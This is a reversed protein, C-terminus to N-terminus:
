ITFRKGRDQCKKDGNNKCGKCGKVCPTKKLKKIAIIVLSLTIIAIILSLILDSSGYLAIGLLNITLAVIYAAATQFIIMFILWKISGLERFAAAVSATCPPSLLVFASFAYVGLPTSFVTQLDVSLMEFTEVVAEKAFASAIVAISAQWSDFGLPKFIPSIAKGVCCLLSQETNGNTYGNVGINRLAWLLVSMVFVILGAKTMFDKTKELLVSKVDKVSPFRLMPIELAFLGNTTKFIKLKKLLSGFVITSVIGLFYMSTAIIASGGFLVTSFWGFVATKAGCPMFPTLFITMRKEDVNEITRTSSLGTVTCGCSLMMPIFSKGSLGFSRFLRDLLFATRAAYGSEEIVALLAFLILIQPLFSCVTGFARIIGDCLMSIIWQPVERGVLWGKVGQGITDFVTTIGKGVFGGLRISLFYVLTMILIFIPLGLYKNLIIKDIRETLEDARIPKRKIVDNVLNEIFAYRSKILDEGRYTLLTPIKPSLRANQAQVVLQDLNENKLASVAIVPANFTRSLRGTDLTIGNKKLQDSFNIAIVMPINLNCLETTLYLNRELNTGDIVNIIVKPPTNKLYSVVVREDMSNADLSYLGPLDTIRVRKNKAYLGEKKEVTVGSWNGVKQYTGTLANFLTTKGCNPNGILAIVDNM